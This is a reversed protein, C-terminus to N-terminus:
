LVMLMGAAAGMVLVLELRSRMFLLGAGALAAAAAVPPWYLERTEPPKAKPPALRRGTDIIADAIDRDGERDLEFYRGGGAAAIRQLSARDLRSRGPSPEVTGDPRRSEPLPGGGLTGVGVVFVPVRVDRAEALARAVEGSWAEGDSLMLFIPVNPSPGRIERDKALLRLGWAVGQELNTDWTADEEVRFPPRAHLHDLFFFVTNPDTTLRVQPTALSAFVVLALRDDSWSLANGLERVFQMSRQWRTAPRGDESAPGDAVQMSASGDQLVVIDLGTRGVDAATGYPRALALVLLTSAAVVGLWLPLDGALPLRERIPLTRRTGLARREALRRRAHLVWRLALLGPALLLWLVPPNAFSIDGIVGRGKQGRM